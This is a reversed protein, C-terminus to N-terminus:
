LNKWGFNMKGGFVLNGLGLTNMVINEFNNQWQLLKQGKGVSLNIPGIGMTVSSFTKKDREWNNGISSVSTGMMQCGLEGAFKGIKSTTNFGKVM